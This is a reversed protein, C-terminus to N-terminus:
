SFPGNEYRSFCNETLGNIRSDTLASLGIMTANDSCLSPPAFHCPVSLSAFLTRFRQNQAVGGAIYIKQSDPYKKLANQCRDYLQNLAAEQFYFCIKNKEEESLDAGTVKNTKTNKLKRIYHIVATKLGSFSFSLAREKNTLTLPFGLEDRFNIKKNDPVSNPYCFGLSHCHKQARKEIEPGGPYTLGLLKAVKDFAEGCADDLTQGLLQKEYANPNQGLNTLRTMQCHGGSVTLALSPFVPNRIPLKKKIFESRHPSFADIYLAPVLHANIHNVGILPINSGTCLGRAFTVGVMLAGILGPGLTVAVADLSPIRIQADKLAIDTISKIKSLHDRAAVEPIVGGYLAHTAAQSEVIHTYSMWYELINKENYFGEVISVATEDCSTEIALIVKSFTEPSKMTQM